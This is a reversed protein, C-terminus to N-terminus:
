DDDDDDSGTMGGSYDEEHLKTEADLVKFYLIVAVYKSNTGKDKLYVGLKDGINFDIGNMTTDSVIRKNRIVQTYRITKTDLMAGANAAHIEVDVDAGVQQNSYTLGVLTCNFPIIATTKDSSLSNDGNHSLWTNKVESNERVFALQFVVINDNSVGSISPDPPAVVVSCDLTDLKTQLLAEEAPSLVASFDFMITVLNDVRIDLCVPVIGADANIQDLLVVPCFVPTPSTKIVIVM